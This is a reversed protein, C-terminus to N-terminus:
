FDIEHFKIEVENKDVGLEESITDLILDNFNFELLEIQNNALSLEHQAHKLGIFLDENQSNYELRNCKNYDNVVTAPTSLKLYENLIFPDGRVLIYDGLDEVEFKPETEINSQIYKNINDNDLVRLPSHNKGDTRPYSVNGKRFESVLNDYSQQPSIGKASSNSLYRNLTSM